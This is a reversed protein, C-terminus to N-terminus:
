LVHQGLPEPARSVKPKEVTIAFLQDFQQLVDKVLRHVRKLAFAFLRRNQTLGAASDHRDDRGPHFRNRFCLHHFTQLDHNTSTVSQTRLGMLRVPAIDPDNTTSTGTDLLRSKAGFHRDFFAM